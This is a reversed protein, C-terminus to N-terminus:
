FPKYTNHAHKRTFFNHLELVSVDSGNAKMDTLAVEKPTLSDM